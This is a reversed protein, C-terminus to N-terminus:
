DGRRGPCATDTAGHPRASEHRWNPATAGSFTGVVFGLAAFLGLLSGFVTTKNIRLGGNLGANTRYISFARQLASIACPTTASLAVAMELGASNAINGGITRRINSVMRAFYELPVERVM